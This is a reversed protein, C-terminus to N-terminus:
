VVDIQKRMQSFVRKIIKDRAINGVDVFQVGYIQSNERKEIERIVKGNLEIEDDEGLFLKIAIKEEEVFKDIASIRMGGGSLNLILAKSWNEKEKEEEERISKIFVNEVLDVRVYDRRQIKSVDYPLELKYLSIQGEKERSIVKTKFTYYSNKYYYNMDVEQGDEFYLFSGEGLPINIIMCSEKVDQITSKYTKNEFYISIIGNIKIKLDKM